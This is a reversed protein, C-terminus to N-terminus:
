SFFVGAVHFSGAHGDTIALEHAAVSERVFSPRPVTCPRTLPQATASVAKPWIHVSMDYIKQGNKFLVYKFFYM